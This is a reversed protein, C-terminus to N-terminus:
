EVYERTKASNFGDPRKWRAEFSRKQITTNPERSVASLTVMRATMTRTTCCLKEGGCELREWISWLGDAECKWRTDIILSMDEIPKRLLLPRLDRHV